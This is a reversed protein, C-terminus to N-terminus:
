SPAGPCPTSAQHARFQSPHPDSLSWRDMQSLGHRQLAGRLWLPQTSKDSHPRTWGAGHSPRQQFSCSILPTTPRACQSMEEAQPISLTPPQASTQPHSGLQTLASSAGPTDKHPHPRHWTHPVPRGKHRHTHRPSSGATRTRASRKSGTVLRRGRQWQQWTQPGPAKRPAPWDAPGPSQGGGAQPLGQSPAWARQDPQHSGVVAWPGVPRQASPGPNMDAWWGGKPTKPDGARRGSM